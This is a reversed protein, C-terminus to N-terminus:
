NPECQRAPLLIGCAVCCAALIAICINSVKFFRAAYVKRRKEESFRVVVDVSARELNHLKYIEFCFMLLEFLIDGFAALKGVICIFQLQDTALAKEVEEVQLTSNNLAQIFFIPLIYLLDLSFGTAVDRSFNKVPLVRYIGSIFTMPLATYLLVGACM